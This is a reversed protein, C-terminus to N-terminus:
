GRRSVAGTPWFQNCHSALQARTCYRLPFLGGCYPFGLPRSQDPIRWLCPLHFPQSLFFPWDPHWARKLWSSPKETKNREVRFKRLSRIKRLLHVSRFEYNNTPRCSFFKYASLYLKNTRTMTVHIFVRRIHKNCVRLLLLIITDRLM